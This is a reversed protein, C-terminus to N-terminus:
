CECIEKFCVQGTDSTFVFLSINKTVEIAVGHVVVSSHSVDKLDSVVMVKILQDTLGCSHSFVGRCYNVENKRGMLM